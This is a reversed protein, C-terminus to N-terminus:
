FDTNGAKHGFLFHGLSNICDVATEERLFCFVSQYLFQLYNIHQCTNCSVVCFTFGGFVSNKGSVCRANGCGFFYACFVYGVGCDASNQVLVFFKYAQGRYIFNEAAKRGIFENSVCWNGTQRIIQFFNQVCSEAIGTRFAVHCCNGGGAAGAYNVM